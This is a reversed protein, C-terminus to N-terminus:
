RCLESLAPRLDLHLREFARCWTFITRNRHLTCCLQGSLTHARACPYPYKICFRPTFTNILLKSCHSYNKAGEIWGGSCTTNGPWGFQFHRRRQGLPRHSRVRAALKHTPPHTPKPPKPTTTAPIQEGKLQSWGGASFQFYSGVVYRFKFSKKSPM